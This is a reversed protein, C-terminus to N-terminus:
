GRPTPLAHSLVANLSCFNLYMDKPNANFVDGQESHNKFRKIYMYM